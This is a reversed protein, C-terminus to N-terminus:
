RPRFPALSKTCQTSNYNSLWNPCSLSESKITANNAGTKTPHLFCEDLKLLKAKTTATAIAHVQTMTVITHVQTTTATTTATTASLAQSSTIANLSSHHNSDAQIGASATTTPVFTQKFHVPGDHPLQLFNSTAIAPGNNLFLITQRRQAEKLLKYELFLHV